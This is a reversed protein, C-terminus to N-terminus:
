GNSDIRSIVVNTGSILSLGFGATFGKGSFNPDRLLCVTLTSSEEHKSQPMAQCSIPCDVDDIVIRIAEREISRRDSGSRSFAISPRPSQSRIHSVPTDSLQNSIKRNLQTREDDGSDYMTSGHTSHQRHQNSTAKATTAIDNSNSLQSIDSCSRRSSRSVSVNAALPFIITKTLFASYCM